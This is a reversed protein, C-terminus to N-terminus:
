KKLTLIVLTVQTILTIAAIAWTSIALHRTYGANKINASMTLIAKAVKTGGETGLAYGERLQLVLWELLEEDSGKIADETNKAMTQM